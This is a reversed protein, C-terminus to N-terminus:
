VPDLPRALRYRRKRAAHTHVVIEGVLGLAIAQVGLVLLLVGFLLLPRDAIGQISLVNSRTLWFIRAPRRRTL